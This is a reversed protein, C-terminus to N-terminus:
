VSAYTLIMGVIRVNRVAQRCEESYSFEAPLEYAHSNVKEAM